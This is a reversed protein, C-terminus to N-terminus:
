AVGQAWNGSRATWVGEQSQEKKALQITNCTGRLKFSEILQVIELSLNIWAMDQDVYLKVSFRNFNIYKEIGRSLFYRM